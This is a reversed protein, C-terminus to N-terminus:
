HLFYNVLLLFLLSGSAANNDLKRKLVVHTVHIVANNLKVIITSLM